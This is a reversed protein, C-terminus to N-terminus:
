LPNGTKAPLLTTTTKNNIIQKIIVRQQNTCEPGIYYAIWLSKNDYMITPCHTHPIQNQNPSYHYQIKM